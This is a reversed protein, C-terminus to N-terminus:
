SLVHAKDNDILNHEWKRYLSSTQVNMRGMNYNNNLPMNM